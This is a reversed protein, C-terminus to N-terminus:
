EVPPQAARTPARMRPARLPLYPGSPFTLGIGPEEIGKAVSPTKMRHSPQNPKLPADCSAIPVIASASETALINTFVLIAAAAPTTIATM